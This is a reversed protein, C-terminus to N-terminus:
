RPYPKVIWTEDLLTGDSDANMTWHAHTSNVFNISGFGWKAVRFLSWVPKTEWNSALGEPTGGNGNVFYSTKGVTPKFNYMETVREYAHVHGTFGIDVKYQDFLPELSVRMKEGEGQHATNSCYWPRHWLAIVWPTTKRDVAALDAEFWKHQPSTASYDTESSLMVVHVNGWDFSWYFDGGNSAKELISTGYRLKFGTFSDITEHNGVSPNYPTYAILPQMIQGFHDWVPGGPNYNNAYSLDGCHLVMDMGSKTRLDILGKVTMESNPDAGVDGIMGFVINNTGPKPASKFSFTSSWQGTGGVQYYYTTSTNLAPLLVSHIGGSTYGEFSYSVASGNASQTFLNASVGWQVTSPDDTSTSVWMILYQNKGAYSVHIQEPPGATVNGKAAIIEILEKSIPPIGSESFYICSILVITLLHTIM